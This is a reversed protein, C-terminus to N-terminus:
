GDNNFDNIVVAYTSKLIRCTGISTSFYLLLSEDITRGGTNDTLSERVTTHNQSGKDELVKGTVNTLSTENLSQVLGLSNGSPFLRSPGLLEFLALDTGVQGIEVTELQGLQLVL